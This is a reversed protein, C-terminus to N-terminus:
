TRRGNIIFYGGIDYKCEEYKNLENKDINSLLCYKSHLMIPIKGLSIKPLVKNFEEEIELNDGNRKIFSINIDIYIPSSYTFNRKRANSPFMLKTSGNNEHIIPNSLYYQGFTINIEYRHKGVNPEYDYNIVIPNNQNIIDQIDNSIFDNYSDIQHQIVQGLGQNKFYADILEWTAKNWNFNPQPQVSDTM